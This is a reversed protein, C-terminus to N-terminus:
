QGTGGTTSESGGTPEIFGHDPSKPRPNEGPVIQPDSPPAADPKDQNRSRTPENSGPQPGKDRQRPNDDNRM